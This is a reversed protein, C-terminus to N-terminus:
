RQIRERLPNLNMGERREGNIRGSSPDLSPDQVWALGISKLQGFLDCGTPKKGVVSGCAKNGLPFAQFDVTGQPNDQPGCCLSMQVSSRGFAPEVTRRSEDNHTECFTM